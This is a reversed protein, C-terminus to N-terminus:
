QGTISASQSERIKLLDLKSALVQTGEAQLRTVMRLLGNMKETALFDKQEESDKTAQALLQDEEL